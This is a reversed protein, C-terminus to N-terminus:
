SNSVSTDIMRQYKGLSSIELKTQETLSAALDYLLLGALCGYRRGLIFFYAVVACYRVARQSSALVGTFLRKELQRPARRLMVIPDDDREAIGINHAYRAINKRDRLGSVHMFPM